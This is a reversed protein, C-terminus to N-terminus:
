IYHFGWFLLVTHWYIEPRDFYASMNVYCDGRDDNLDGKTSTIIVIKSVHHGCKRLIRLQFNRFHQVLAKDTELLEKYLILTKILLTTQSLLLSIQQTKSIICDVHATQCTCRLKLASMM